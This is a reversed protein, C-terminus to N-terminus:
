DTAITVRHSSVNQDSERDEGECPDTAPYFDCGAREKEKQRVRNRFSERHTLVLYVRM